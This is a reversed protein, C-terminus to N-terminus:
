RLLLLKLRLPRERLPPKMETGAGKIACDAAMVCASDCDTRRLLATTTGCSITCPSSLLWRYLWRTDAEWRIPGSDSPPDGFRAKSPSLCSSLAFGGGCTKRLSYARCAGPSPRRKAIPPHMDIIVPEEKGSWPHSKVLNISTKKRGLGCSTRLCATKQAVTIAM